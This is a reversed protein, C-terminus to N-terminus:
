CNTTGDAVGFARAPAAIATAAVAYNRKTEATYDFGSGFIDKLATADDDSLANMLKEKTDLFFSRVASYDTLHEALNEGTNVPNEILPAKDAEQLIVLIGDLTSVLDAMISGSDYYAKTVLTLIFISKIEDTLGALDRLRKLIIAMQRIGPQAGAKGNFWEAYQKADSPKWDSNDRDPVSRSGNEAKTPVLDIHFAVGTKDEPYEVRICSNKTKDIILEGFTDDGEVATATEDLADVAYGWDEREIAIDIDFEGAKGGGQKATLPKAMTDTAFSGQAYVIADPFATLALSLVGELARNIQTEQTKTLTIAELYKKLPQDFKEYQM